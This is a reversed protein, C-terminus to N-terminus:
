LGQAGLFAEIQAETASFPLPCRGFVVDGARNRVMYGGYGNGVELLFGGADLRFRVADERPEERLLKKGM